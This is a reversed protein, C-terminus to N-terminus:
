VQLRKLRAELVLDCWGGGGWGAESKATAKLIASNRNTIIEFLHVNKEHEIQAIAIKNDDNVALQLAQKYKNEMFSYVMMNTDAVYSDYSFSCRLMGNRRVRTEIIADNKTTKCERYVKESSLTGGSARAYVSCLEIWDTIEYRANTNIGARQMYTIASNQCKFGNISLLLITVLAIISM